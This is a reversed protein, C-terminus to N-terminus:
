CSHGTFVPCPKCRPQYQPQNNIKHISISLALQICGGNLNKNNSIACFSFQQQWCNYIPQHLKNKIRRNRYQLGTHKRCIFENLSTGVNRLIGKAKEMSVADALMILLAGYYAHERPPLPQPNLM